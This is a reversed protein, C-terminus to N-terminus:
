AEIVPGYCAKLVPGFTWPGLMTMRVVLGWVRELGFSPGGLIRPTHSHKSDSVDFIRSFPLVPRLLLFVSAALLSEKHALGLCPQSSYRSM